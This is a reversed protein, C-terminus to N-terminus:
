VISDIVGPAKNEARFSPEVLGVAALARAHDCGANRLGASAPCDCKVVGWESKVVRFAVGDARRLRFGGLSGPSRRVRSLSYSEGAITLTLRATRAPAATAPM